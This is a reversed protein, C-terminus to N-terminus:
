AVQLRDLPLQYRRWLSCFQFGKGLWSDLTFPDYEGTVTLTAYGKEWAWAVLNQHLDDELSSGRISPHCGGIEQILGFGGMAERRFTYLAVLRGEQWALFTDSQQQANLADFFRLFGQYSAAPEGFDLGRKGTFTTCLAAADEHWEERCGASEFTLGLQPGQPAEEIELLNLRLVSISGRHQFGNRVWLSAHGADGSEWLWLDSCGAGAAAHIAKGALLQVASEPADEAAAYCLDGGLTGDPRRAVTVRLVAQVQDSQRLVWRRTQSQPDDLRMSALDSSEHSYNELPYRRNWLDLVEDIREGPMIERFTM